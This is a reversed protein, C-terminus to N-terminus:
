TDIYLENRYSTIHETQRNQITDLITELLYRNLIIDYKVRHIYQITAIETFLFLRESTYHISVFLWHSIYRNPEKPKTHTYM